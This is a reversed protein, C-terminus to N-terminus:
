YWHQGKVIAEARLQQILKIAQYIDKFFQKMPAGALLRYYGRNGM